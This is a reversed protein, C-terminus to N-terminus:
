EAVEFLLGLASQSRPGGSALGLGALNIEFSAKGRKPMHVKLPQADPYQQVFMPSEMPEDLSLSMTGEIFPLNLFSGISAGSGDTAFTGENYVRARQVSSIHVTM